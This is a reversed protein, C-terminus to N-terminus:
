LVEVNETEYLHLKGKIPTHECERANKLVWAYDGEYADCCAADLDSAKIPRVDVLDVVCVAKGAHEWKPSVSSAILLPGRYDTKWTRVEITKKGRAILDAWPYKVSLTKM